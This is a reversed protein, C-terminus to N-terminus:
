LSLLAKAYVGTAEVCIIANNSTVQLQTLWQRFSDHGECTNAFSGTHSQGQEPGSYTSAAFDNLSPDIGVFASVSAHTLRSPM